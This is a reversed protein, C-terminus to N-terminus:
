FIEVELVPYLNNGTNLIKVNFTQLLYEVEEKVIPFDPHTFIYAYNCHNAEIEKILFTINRKEIPLQFYSLLHCPAKDAFYIYVFPINSCITGEKKYEIQDIRWIKLPPNYNLLLILHSIIIGLIIFVVLPKEVKKKWKFAFPALIATLPIAKTVYIRSDIKPLFLHVLTLLLFSLFIITYNKDKRFWRLSFLLFFTAIANFNILNKIFWFYDSYQTTQTNFAMKETVFNVLLFQLPPYILKGFILSSILFNLLISISLFPIICFKLFLRDKIKFLFFPIMPIAMDPRFAFSFGFLIGTLINPTKGRNFYFLLGALFFLIAPLDSLTYSTFFLLYPNIGILIGGLFGLLESGTLKKVLLFIVVSSILLYACNMIRAIELHPPIVLSLLPSRISDLFLKNQTLVSKSYVLYVYGDWTVYKNDKYKNYTVFIIILLCTILFILYLGDKRAM